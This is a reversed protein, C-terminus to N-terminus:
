SVAKIVISHFAVNVREKGRTSISFLDVILSTERSVDHFTM